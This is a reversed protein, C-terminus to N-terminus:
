VPQDLIVRLKQLARLYRTSAASPEIELVAAADQNSFQEFHRLMLLERDLDDMQTLANRLHSQLEKRVAAMSPSTMTGAFFQALSESAASVPPQAVERFVNRRDAGAHRRHTDVLKQNAVRHLWVRFPVAPNAIYDALRKAIEIHTEQVVDSVGVRQGVRPNIRLRIAKELAADHRNLLQQLANDDGQAAAQALQLDETM